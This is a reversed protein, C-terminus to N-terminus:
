GGPPPLAKLSCQPSPLLSPWLSSCPRLPTLFPWTLRILYVFAHCGPPQPIELGRAQSSFFISGPFSLVAPEVDDFGGIKQPLGHLHCAQRLVRGCIMVDWVILPYWTFSVTLVAMLTALLSNKKREWLCSQLGSIISAPIMRSKETATHMRGDRRDRASEKEESTHSGSVSSWCILRRRIKFYFCGEM